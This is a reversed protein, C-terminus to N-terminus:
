RRRCSSSGTRSPTVSCNARGGCGTPSRTRTSASDGRRRVFSLGEELFVRLTAAIRRPLTRRWGRARGLEREAFRRAESSTTAHAPGTLASTATALSRGPRAGDPASVSADPSSRRKHSRRFGPSARAATVSRSGSASPSRTRTARRVRRLRHGPRLVIGVWAALTRRGLPVCLADTGGLTREIDHAVREFNGITGDEDEGEEGWLVIAVHTRALEYRLRQAARARRRHLRRPDRSGRRRSSGRRQPGVARARAHVVRHHRLQVADLYPFMWASCFSVSEALPRTRSAIGCGTWSCASSCRTGSVTPACSTRSRCAAACSSARM